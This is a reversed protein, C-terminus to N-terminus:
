ENLLQEENIQNSIHSYMDALTNINEALKDKAYSFDDPRYELSKFVSNIKNVNLSGKTFVNQKLKDMYMKTEEPYNKCLFTLNELLNDHWLSARRFTFIFEYDNSPALSINTKGDVNEKLFCVNRPKFDSDDLIINRTIYYPIIDRIFKDTSSKIVEDSPRLKKPIRYYLGPIKVKLYEEWASFPSLDNVPVTTFTDELTEVEQGDKVFDVSITHVKDDITACTNYVTKTGFLNALRSGLVENRTNFSDFFSRETKLLCSVYKIPIDEGGKCNEEIFDDIYSVYNNDKMKQKFFDRLASSDLRIFRKEITGGITFQTNECTVYKSTNSYEDIRDKKIRKMM